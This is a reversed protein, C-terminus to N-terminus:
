IYEWIICISSNDDDGLFSIIYIMDSEVYRAMIGGSESKRFDKFVSFIEDPIALSVGEIKIYKSSGNGGVLVDTIMEDDNRYSGSVAMVNKYWIQFFSTGDGRDIIPEPASFDESLALIDSVKCPLTLQYGDITVMKSIREGSWGEPFPPIIDGTKNNILYLDGNEDYERSYKPEAEVTNEESVASQVTTEEISVQKSPAVCGALSCMLVFAALASLFRKQKM